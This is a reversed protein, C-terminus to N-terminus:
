AGVNKYNTGLKECKNVIVNLQKPRSFGANWDKLVCHHEFEMLRRGNGTAHKLIEEITIYLLEVNLIITASFTMLNNTFYKPVSETDINYLVPPLDCM